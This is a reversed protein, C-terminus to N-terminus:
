KGINEVYVAPKSNRRTIRYNIYNEPNDLVYNDVVASFNVNDRNYISDGIEFESDLGVIEVGLADVVARVGAKDCEDMVESRGIEFNAEFYENHAKNFINYLKEVAENYEKTNSM